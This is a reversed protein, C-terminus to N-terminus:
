REMAWGEASMSWLEQPDRTGWGYWGALDSGNFLTRFGPPPVAPEGMTVTPLLTGLLCGLSLTLRRPLRNWPRVTM